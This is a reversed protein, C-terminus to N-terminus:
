LQNNKDTKYGTTIIKVTISLQTAKDCYLNIYITHVLEIDRPGM